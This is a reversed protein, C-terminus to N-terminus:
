TVHFSARMGREYHSIVEGNVLEAVNCQLEYEGPELELTLDKEEGVRIETAAGLIEFKGDATMRAVALEHIEGGEDAGHGHGGEEHVALFRVTGAEVSDQSPSIAWNTLAVEIIGADSEDDGGGSCAAILLGPVLAALALVGPRV